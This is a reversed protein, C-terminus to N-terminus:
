EQCEAASATRCNLNYRGEVPNFDCKIFGGDDVDFCMSPAIPRAAKAKILQSLARATVERNPEVSAAVTKAVMAKSPSSKAKAKKAKKTATKAKAKKVM